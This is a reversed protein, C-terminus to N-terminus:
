FGGVLEKVGNTQDIGYKQNLIKLCDNFKCCPDQVLIEPIIFPM